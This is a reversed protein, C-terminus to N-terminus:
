IDNLLYHKIDKMTNDLTKNRLNQLKAPINKNKKFSFKLDRLLYKSLEIHEKVEISINNVKLIKYIEKFNKTYPGHYIKCNMMAADLPNQGGNDELEKILSKGIFVSKAYKFYNQLVGFSNIIIIEKDELIKDNKNLIQTKLNLSESLFKIDKVREIHRPAIITLVKKFKKKLENHTKMFFLDEGNHTSAAVWFKKKTLINKNKNKIKNNDIKNILKINGNYRVNKANLKKLYDQTEKNSTLSLKFISFIDKSTKSFLKWKKFTKLSLRANILSIPINNKKALLILNPWIESDVLFILDPKWLNFFRKILFNVDVPFFRHYINPFKKLEINALNSSSLTITTILFNLNEYNKNLEKIIPLISKYEGISAAHFWILKKNRKKIVNFNSSFIKEKYRKKDEKKLFVRCFVIIIIFPYLIATLARYLLTM